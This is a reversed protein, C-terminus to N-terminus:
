LLDLCSRPGSHQEWRGVKNLEQTVREGREGGELNASIVIPHGLSPVCPAQCGSGHGCSLWRLSPCSSLGGVWRGTDQRLGGVRAEQPHTVSEGIGEEQGPSSGPRKV